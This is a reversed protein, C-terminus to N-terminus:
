DYWHVTKASKIVVKGEHETKFQGLETGETLVKIDLRESSVWSDCYVRLIKDQHEHLINAM